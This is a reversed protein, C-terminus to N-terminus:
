GLINDSLGDMLRYINGGTLRDFYAKLDIYGQWKDTIKEYVGYRLAVDVFRQELLCPGEPLALADVLQILRDYDDMPYRKLYNELQTREDANVNEFGFASDSDMDGFPFSHTLSIRALAPYGLETLYRAGDFIHRQGKGGFRRGIDHLLGRVYAEEPLLHPTKEAIAAAIRAATRSHEGWPGPNRREAEELLKEAQRKEIIPRGAIPIKFVAIEKEEHDLYAGNRIMVAMSAINQVEATLWFAEETVSEMTLLRKLGATAYGKGRHAPHVAYGIHGGNKKLSETLYRRFKFVAVYDKDIEMVYTQQPVYGPALDIGQASLWEKESYRCFETWNLGYANYHFGNENKQTFSQFFQYAKKQDARELPILQM